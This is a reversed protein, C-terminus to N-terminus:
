VIKKLEYVELNKLPFIFTDMYLDQLGNFLLIDVQLKFHLLQYYYVLLLEYLM